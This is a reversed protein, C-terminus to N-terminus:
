PTLVVYNNARAYPMIETDPANRTGLTSWYEAEFGEQAMLEVWRPSLNMDVLV